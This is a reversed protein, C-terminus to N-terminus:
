YLIMITKIKIFLLKYFILKLFFTIQLKLNTLKKFKVLNVLTTHM